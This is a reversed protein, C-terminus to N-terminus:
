KSVAESSSHHGKEEIAYGVCGLYRNSGQAQPPAGQSWIIERGKDFKGSIRRSYAPPFFM